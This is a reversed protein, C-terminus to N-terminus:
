RTTQNEQGFSNECVRSVSEKMQETNRVTQVVKPDAIDHTDFVFLNDSKM